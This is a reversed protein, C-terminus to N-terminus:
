ARSARSSSAASSGRATGPLLDLRDVREDTLGELVVADGPHQASVHRREAGDACCSCRRLWLLSSRRACIPMSGITTYTTPARDPHSSRYSSDCSACACPSRSRTRRTRDRAARAYSVRRVSGACSRSRARRREARLELPRPRRPRPAAAVAPRRLASRRPGANQDRRLSARPRGSVSANAVFEFQLQQGDLQADRVDLCATLARGSHPPAIGTFYRACSDAARRYVASSCSCATKRSCSATIPARSGAACTRSKWRACCRSKARSASATRRRRARRAAHRARAATRPARARTRRPTAAAPDPAQVSVGPGIRALLTRRARTAADGRFFAADFDHCFPLGGAVFCGAASAVVLTGLALQAATAAAAPRRASDLHPASGRGRDCCRRAAARGADPLALLAGARDPLREAPQARAAAACLLLYRPALLPLLALPALVRLPYSARAPAILHDVVLRPDRVLAPLVGLPSGGWKGYHLDTSASLAGGLLPQLALSLGFYLLSGILLACRPGAGPAGSRWRSRASSRPRCRSAPAALSPQWACGFSRAAPARARRAASRAGRACVGAAAHRAHRPSVRLDRRPRPESLAPVRAVGRRRGAARLAACRDAVAALRRARACPEARRLLTPVTGLLAGLAGLPLLVFPLHGGLLATRSRTGRSATCSGGPSGRTCRSTSPRTTCAPSARSRSCSRDAGRAARDRRARLARIRPQARAVGARRRRRGCPARAYWLHGRAPQGARLLQNLARAHASVHVLVRLAAGATFRQLPEVAVAHRVVLGVEHGLRDRQLLELLQM